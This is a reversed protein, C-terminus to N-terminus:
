SVVNLSPILQPPIEIRRLTTDGSDVIEFVKELMAPVDQRVMDSITGSCLFLLIGTLVGWQRNIPERRGPKRWGAFWGKLLSQRTSSYGTFRYQLAKSSEKLLGEVRASSYGTVLKINM